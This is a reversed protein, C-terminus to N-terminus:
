FDMTRYDNREIYNLTKISVIAMKGVQNTLKLQIFYPLDPEHYEFAEKVNFTTDIEQGVIVKYTVEVMKDIIYQFLTGCEEDTLKNGDFAQAIQRILERLIHETATSTEIIEDRSLANQIQRTLFGTEINEVSFYALNFGYSIIEKAIDQHTMITIKDQQTM